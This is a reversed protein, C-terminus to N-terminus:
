FRRDKLIKKFIYPTILYLLIILIYLNDKFFCFWLFLLTSFVSINTIKFLLEAKEETLFLDLLEHFITGGDLGDLPLLNYIAVVLNLIFLNENKFSFSILALMINSIPGALVTIVKKHTECIEAYEVSVAGVILKVSKVKSKFLIIFFLHAVEHVLISVLLSLFIGTKDCAIYVTILASFVYDVEFKIGCFTFHM